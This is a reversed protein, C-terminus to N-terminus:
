DVMQRYIQQNNLNSNAELMMEVINEDLSHPTWSIVTLMAVM